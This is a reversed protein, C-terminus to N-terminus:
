GTGGGKPRLQLHKNLICYVTSRSLHIGEKELWYVIKEGVVTTTNGGSPSYESSLTLTLRVADQGRRPM